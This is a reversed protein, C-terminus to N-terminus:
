REPPDEHGRVLARFMMSLCGFMVLVGSTMMALRCLVVLATLVFCGAMLRMNRVSVGQVRLMVGVFGALLVRSIM